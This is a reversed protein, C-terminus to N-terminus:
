LVPMHPQIEIFRLLEIVARAANMLNWKSEERDLKEDPDVHLSLRGVAFVLNYYLYHTQIVIMKTRPSAIKRLGLLEKPRFEVPVASRWEELGRRIHKISRLSHEASKASSSTSFLTTYAISTLRSLHIASLFWNYNGFM